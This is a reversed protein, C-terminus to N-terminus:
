RVILRKTVVSQTTQITVIYVGQKLDSVNVSTTKSHPFDHVVQKGNIDSLTIQDIESEARIFCENEAPNPYLRITETDWEGLGLDTFFKNETTNTVIPANYDFYIYATNHIITGNTLGPLPKVRYQIFGISGEPDSTSDPLMINPFRVSLLRSQPNLTTTFADSANMVKFTSLDLNSDLTDALRINFAPANGTNQFYITYTFEDEFGPEVIEPYTQKINPDYSNVVGYCYSYLNNTIDSEGSANTAVSVTVCFEDGAVATTDTLVSLVFQNANIAGFDAISYVANNGSVNSPSGGFTVTGPGTVSVTVEGAIGSACHMNYPATLDGAFLSVEHTQGPFILGYPVVSQIGLDFGNCILGFDGGPVVTDAAPVTATSSNGAPCAVQLAPTLNATDINLQYSGMGQSATFFYSGDALCTSSVILNGTSDHISMPICRLTQGTSTCNANVDNFVIGEMGMAAICSNPNNVPDNADCLPYALLSTGFTPVYNPICTFPNGDIELIDLTAPFPDFCQIQNSDCSLVTLSDPLAPLSTLLNGRCSLSHLSNPLAPLATLANEICSLVFLAPPLVPLSTLGISDAYLVQLAAPLTSLSPLPNNSCIFTLLDNPLPPISTLQNHGITLAKVSSPIVPLSTLQNGECGFFILNPPLAPLATIQNNNCFLFNMSASLVPLSNLQNSSIDMFILNSPLVPLTSLQNNYCNLMTLNVFAEVGEISAITLGSIELSDEAQVDPHDSDIYFTGGSTMFAGAPYHTTLYNQFNPDPVQVWTQAKLQLSIFALITILLTKM